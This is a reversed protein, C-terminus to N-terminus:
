IDLVLDSRIIWKVGALVEKGEHLLCEDGHRHLLAMGKEPQVDIVQPQGSAALEKLERKSLPIYPENRYFATEGGVVGDAPGTLYLLLTYITRHQAPPSGLTLTNSDDHDKISQSPIEAIYIGKTYRYIRINPNLGWPKVGANLEDQGWLLEQSDERELLEKLGTELWLRKAFAPDQVQFRDNVRVAEGRKPKSPTTTLPLNSLFQIYTNCLSATFFQSVTLIQRDLVTDLQLLEPPLFGKFAPWQPTEPAAPTTSSADNASAAVKKGKKSAAASAKPM